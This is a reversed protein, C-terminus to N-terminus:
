LTATLKEIRIMTNSNMGVPSNLPFYSHFLMGVAAFLLVNRTTTSKADPHHQAM